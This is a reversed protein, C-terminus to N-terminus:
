RGETVVCGLIHERGISEVTARVSAMSIGGLPVVVIATDSKLIIPFGGDSELVPDVSAIVMSGREVKRILEDALASSATPDLGHADVLAVSAGRASGADALARALDRASPGREVPVVALFSVRRQRLTVWTRFLDCAVKSGPGAPLSPLTGVDAEGARASEDVPDLLTISTTRKDSM